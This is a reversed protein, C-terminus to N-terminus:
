VGIETQLELRNYASNTPIFAIRWNRDSSLLYDKSRNSYQIAEDVQYYLCSNNGATMECANGNEDEYDWLLVWTGEFGDFGEANPNHTPLAYQPVSLYNSYEELTIISYAGTAIFNSDYPVETALETLIDQPMDENHYEDEVSASLTIYMDDNPVFGYMLRVFDVGELTSTGPTLEVYADSSSDWRYLKWVGLTTTITADTAPDAEAPILLTLRSINIKNKAVYYENNYEGTYKEFFEGCIENLEEQTYVKKHFLVQVSNYSDYAQSYDTGAISYKLNFYAYDSTCSTFTVICEGDALDDGTQRLTLGVFEGEDEIRWVIQVNPDLSKILDYDAYDSLVIKVSKEGDAYTYEGYNQEVNNYTFTKTFGSEDLVIKKIEWNITEGTYNEDDWVYYNVLDKLTYTTHYQGISTQTTNNGTIKYVNPDDLTVALTIPDGTYAYSLYGSDYSPKSVSGKNITVQVLYITEDEKGYYAKLDEGMRIKAQLKIGSDRADLGRTITRGYEDKGTLELTVWGFANRGGVIPCSKIENYWDGGYSSNVQIELSKLFDMSLAKHDTTSFLPDLSNFTYNLTLELSNIFNTVEEESYDNGERYLTYQWNFDGKQVELTSGTSPVSYSSYHNEDQVRAFIYYLGPMLYETNVVITNDALVKGTTFESAYHDLFENKRMDIIYTTLDGATEAVTIENYKDILNDGALVNFNGGVTDSWTFTYNETAVRPMAYISKVKTGSVAERAYNDYVYAKYGSRYTEVDYTNSYKQMGFKYRNQSSYTPYNTSNEEIIAINLSRNFANAKSISIQLEVQYGEITFVIKYEGAALPKSSDIQIEEYSVNEGVVESTTRKYYKETYEFNKLEEESFNDETAEKMSGDKYGFAFSIRNYFSSIFLHDNYEEYIFGNTSYDYDDVKIYVNNMENKDNNDDGCATLIFALPLVLVFALIAILIKKKM